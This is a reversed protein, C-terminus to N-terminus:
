QGDEKSPSNSSVEHAAKFIEYNTKTLQENLYIPSPSDIGVYSLSLLKKTELRLAGVTRMLNVKDEPRDIKIMIIPDVISRGNRPPKIRFIDRIKPTPTVKLNFWLTHFLGKADEGQYFPVGHLRLDCAVRENQQLEFASKLRKAQNRLARTEAVESKLGEVRKMLESM